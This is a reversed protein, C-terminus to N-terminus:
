CRGCERSAGYASGISHYPGCGGTFAAPHCYARCRPEGRFQCGMAAAPHILQQAAPAQSAARLLALAAAANAMNENGNGNGNGTDSM